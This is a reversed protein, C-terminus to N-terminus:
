QSSPRSSFCPLPHFIFVSHLLRVNVYGFVVVFVYLIETYKYVTSAKTVTAAQPLEGWAWHMAPNQNDTDSPKTM